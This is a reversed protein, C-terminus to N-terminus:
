LFRSQLEPTPIMCHAKKGFIRYRSRSVLNYFFDRLFRPIYIFGYCWSWPSNLKKAIRLVATSKDYIVGDEILIITNMSGARQTGLYQAATKSQLPAFKFYAHTDHQIIFQIAGNCLNCVGDFFIIPHIKSDTIETNSGM